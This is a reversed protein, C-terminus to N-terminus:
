QTSHLTLGDRPCWASTTAYERSRTRCAMLRVQPKAKSEEKGGDDDLVVLPEAQASGEYSEHSWGKM